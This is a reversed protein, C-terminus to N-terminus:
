ACCKLSEAIAKKFLVPDIDEQKYGLANLADSADHTVCYEHNQLEYVLSDFLYKEEKKREKKEQAHRKFMANWDASKTKLIYGGAGLSYIAKTDDAALGIKAMGEAFQENNFAFFIGQFDNLEQAQRAKLEQYTEM